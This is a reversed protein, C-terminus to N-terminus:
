FPVPSGQHPHVTEITGPGPPPTPQAPETPPVPTTVPATHLTPAPAVPAQAPAAPVTAAPVVPAPASVVGPTTTHVAQAPVQAPAPAAEPPAGAPVAAQNQPVLNISTIRGAQMGVGPLGNAQTYHNMKIDQCGISVATGAQLYPLLEESLANTSIFGSIWVTEDCKDYDNWHTSCLSIFYSFGKKTLKPPRGLRGIVSAVIM